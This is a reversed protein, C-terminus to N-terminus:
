IGRAANQGSVTSAPDLRLPTPMEIPSVCHNTAHRGIGLKFPEKFGKVGVIRGGYFSGDLLHHYGAVMSKHLRENSQEIPFVDLTSMDRIVDNPDYAGV